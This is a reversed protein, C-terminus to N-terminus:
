YFRAGAIGPRNVERLGSTLARERAVNILALFANERLEDYMRDRM